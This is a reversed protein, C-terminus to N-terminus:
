DRGHEMICLKWGVARFPVNNEKGRDEVISAVVEVSSLRISKEINSAMVISSEYTEQLYDQGNETNGIGNEIDNKTVVDYLCEALEFIDTQASTTTATIAIIAVAAAIKKM